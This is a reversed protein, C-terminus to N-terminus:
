RQRREGRRGPKAGDLRVHSFEEPGNLLRKKRAAQDDATASADVMNDIVEGAMKRARRRQGVGSQGDEQAALAQEVLRCVAQSLTLKEASREAWKVIAARLVPTPRFGIPADPQNRTKSSTNM